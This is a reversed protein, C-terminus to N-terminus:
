FIDVYMCSLLSSFCRINQFPPHIHKLVDMKKAPQNMHGSETVMSSYKPPGQVRLLTLLFHGYADTQHLPQPYGM